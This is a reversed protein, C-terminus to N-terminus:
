LATVSNRGNQKARYMATDARATMQSVSEGPLALTAGISLTAHIEQGLHHIPEAARCRIKEAIGVVDAINGVNPLLVLMEDGGVRGVTDGERVSDRIRSALTSLVVDGITHGWTDNIEKFRDADCFLVGLHHSGQLRRQQLAAELRTITEAHNVLGTLSDIRALRQLEQHATRLRQEDARRDTVDRIAASVYRTQEIHLPSLSIDVPFETGDRRLGWLELGRGMPRLMPEAFFGARLRLHDSRFRQPLLVEVASGVLEDRPYGFMRDTQANVLTIRGESDIIVMADPAAELLDYFMPHNQQQDTVLDRMVTIFGTVSGDEDGITHVTVGAKVRRGDKGVLWGQFETRGSERARVFVQETGGRDAATLFLAIPAGVAETDSYGLLIRAGASWHTVRGDADLKVIGRDTVADLMLEADDRSM